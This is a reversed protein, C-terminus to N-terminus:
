LLISFLYSDVSFSKSSGKAVEQQSKRWSPLELPSHFWLLKMGVWLEVDVVWCLQQEVRVSQEQKLDQIEVVLCQEVFVVLLLVVSVVHVSHSPTKQSRHTHGLRM